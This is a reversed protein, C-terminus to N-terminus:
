VKTDLTVEIQPRHRKNPDKRLTIKFPLILDGKAKAHSLTNYIEKKLDENAPKGKFPELLKEILTHQDHCFQEGM